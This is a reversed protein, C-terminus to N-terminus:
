SFFEDIAISAMNPCVVKSVSGPNLLMDFMEKEAM